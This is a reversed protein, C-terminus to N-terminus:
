RRCISLRPTKTQPAQPLPWWARRRTITGGTNEIPVLHARRNILDQTGAIPQRDVLVPNVREACTWASRGAAVNESTSAGM